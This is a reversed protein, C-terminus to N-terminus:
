VGCVAFAGWHLVDAYPVADEDDPLAEVEPGGDAQFTRIDASTARKMWRQARLLAEGMSYGSGGKEKNSQAIEHCLRSLLLRGSTGDGDQWLSRVVTSCGSLLLADALSQSARGSVGTEVMVVARPPQRFQGARWARLVDAESLVPPGSEAKLCRGAFVALELGPRAPGPAADFLTGLVDSRRAADGELWLSAGSLTPLKASALCASAAAAAPRVAATHEPSGPGVVFLSAGNMGDKAESVASSASETGSTASVDGGAGGIASVTVGRMVGPASAAAAAVAADPYAGKHWPPCGRDLDRLTMFCMLSISPVTRVSLVSGFLAADATELLCAWPLAETVGPSPVVIIHAGDGAARKTLANRLAPLAPTIWRERSSALSERLAADDVVNGGDDIGEYFLAATGSSRDEGCPGIRFHAVDDASAADIVWGHCVGDASKMPGFLLIISNRWMTSDPTGVEMMKNRVDSWTPAQPKATSAPVSTGVSADILGINDLLTRGACEDAIGAADRRLSEAHKALDAADPSEAAAAAAAKKDATRVSALKCLMLGRFAARHEACFVDGGVLPLGGRTRVTAFSTLASGFAHAAKAAQRLGLSTAGISAFAMAAGARDGASVALSLSQESAVRAEGNEGVGRLVRALRLLLGAQASPTRTADAVLARVQELAETYEEASEYADVLAERAAHQKQLEGSAMASDLWQRLYGVARGHEGFRELASAAERCVYEMPESASFTIALSVAADFLGTSDLLIAERSEAGSASGGAADTDTRKRDLSDSSSGGTGVQSLRCVGAGVLAMCRVESTDDDGLLSLVAQHAAKEAGLQGQLRYCRALLANAVVQSSEDGLSVARALQEKGHRVAADVDGLARFAEALTGHIRGALVALSSVLASEDESAGVESVKVRPELARLATMGARVADDFRSCRVLANSIEWQMCCATVADGSVDAERAVTAAINLVLSWEGAGKAGELADLASGMDTQARTTVGKSHAGRGAAGSDSAKPGMADTEAAAAGDVRALGGVASGRGSDCM